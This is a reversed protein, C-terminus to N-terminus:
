PEKDDIVAFNPDLEKMIDMLHVAYVYPTQKRKNSLSQYQRCINTESM